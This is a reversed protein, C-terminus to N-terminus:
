AAPLEDTLKQLIFFKLYRTEPMSSLVPHDAPQFGRFLTRTRSGSKRVSYEVAKLFDDESVAQSCSSTALLGGPALMQMATINIRQYAKMAQDVQRRNRAFGPPDLIILDYPTGEEAMAGLRQLADAEIFSVRDSLGNREANHRARDLAAASTDMMDVHAAGGAAAHLGFGGDACFADLVRRGAAFRRVSHRHERQDLFFGTKPGNMVDIRFVLGDEVIEVPGEYTGRLVGVAQELGDKERLPADDRQVIASPGVLQELADLLWERRAEMGFSLTSWTLVDGYRDVITGPLGDSESFVLRVHTTNGYAQRRFAVARELRERFFVEDIPRNMDRTLFRVAILSRDHYFGRGLPRGGHEAIEVVDGRGPNGDIRDILNAFIWPYGRHLFKDKNKKLSIRM